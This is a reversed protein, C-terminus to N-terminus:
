TDVKKKQCFTDVKNLKNIPFAKYLSFNNGSLKGVCKFCQNRIPLRGTHMHSSKKKKTGFSNGNTIIEPYAKYLYTANGKGIFILVSVKCFIYDM